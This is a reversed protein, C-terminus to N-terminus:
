LNESTIEDVDPIQMIREVFAKNKTHSTHVALQVAYGDSAKRLNANIYKIGLDMVVKKIEIIVAANDGTRIVYAFVKGQKELVATIYNLLLLGAAVFIAAGFATLYYGVGVAIGLAGSCWLAAATTLGATTFRERIIIAAGLLGLATVIHALIPIPAVTKEAGGALVIALTTFLASGVAILVNVKLGADKRAIERELGIIGGLVAALLLKLVIEIGM